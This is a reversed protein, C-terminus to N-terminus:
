KKFTNIPKRAAPQRQRAMFSQGQSLSALKSDVNDRQTNLAMRYFASALLRSEMVSMCDNEPPEVAVQDLGMAEGLLRPDLGKIVEKAKEVCKRYKMEQAALEQNKLEVSSELQRIRTHSNTIQSQAEELLHERTDCLERLEVTGSKHKEDDSVNQSTLLLIKQNAVKLQDRLKENRQNADTLLDTLATQGGQGERLAKNEAELRSMKEKSSDGLLERSINASDDDGIGAQSCRLEDVKEQLSDRQSLLNDRERQLGAIKTQMVQLDFEAKVTKQMETDLKTHLEELEKKYLEMQSRLGTFKKAEDEYQLNQKLYEAARDEYQKLQRKLDNYDELKKKYTTLQTELIKSKESAERLIDVEDKIQSLENSAKTLEEIKSQLISIQVEQQSSKMKLDEKMTDSLLLDNKLADVQKRLENFRQSGEMPNGLSMADDGIIGPNEYKDVQMQLRQIEQQLTIKEDLLISIKNDKEHCQQALMERDDKITTAQENSLNLSNRASSPGGINEIEQLAKMINRQVSEEMDMIQTIYTQKENCNVALGLVLKLLKEMEKIDNHEAIKMVEPKLNAELSLDLEESYYQVVSDVVKKM